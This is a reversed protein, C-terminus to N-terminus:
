ELLEVRSFPSSCPRGEAHRYVAAGDAGIVTAASVTGYADGHICPADIPKGTPSDHRSLIMRLAAELDAGGTTLKRTREAYGYLWRDKERSADDIDGVTLLHLGPDLVTVRPPGTDDVSAAIALSPSVYLVNVPNYRGPALDALFSPITAEDRLLAEVPIDGRSRREPNRYVEREVVGVSRNTAACVRAGDTVALWTGGAMSDRGGAIRPALLQPPESPRDILEDRNAALVFDADDVNHWALLITCM